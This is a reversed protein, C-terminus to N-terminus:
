VQKSKWEAHKKLHRSGKSHSWAARAGPAQEKKWMSQGPGQTKFKKNCALCVFGVHVVKKAPGLWQKSEELFEVEISQTEPYEAHWWKLDRLTEKYEESDMQHTLLITWIEGHPNYIEGHNAGRPYKKKLTFCLCTCRLQLSDMQGRKRQSAERTIDTIQQM